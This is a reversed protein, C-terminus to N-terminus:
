EENQNLDSEQEQDPDDSTHNFKAKVQGLNLYILPLIASATYRFVLLGKDDPNPGSLVPTFEGMISVAFFIVVTLLFLRRGWNTFRWLGVATVFFVLSFIGSVVQYILLRSAITESLSLGNLSLSIVVLRTLNVLGLVLSWLAM